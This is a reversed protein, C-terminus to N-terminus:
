HDGEKRRLHWPCDSGRIMKGRARDPTEGGGLTEQMGLRRASKRRWPDEQGISGRGALFNSNLLVVLVIRTVWESKERCKSNGISKEFTARGGGWPGGM